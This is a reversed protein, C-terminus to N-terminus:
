KKWKNIMAKCNKANMIEESAELKANTSEQLAKMKDFESFTPPNMRIYYKAKIAKEIEYDSYDAYIRYNKCKELIENDIKKNETQRNEVNQNKKSNASVLQSKNIYGYENYGNVNYSVYYWSGNRSIFKLNVNDPLKAIINSNMTAKERVNVPGSTSKTIYTSAKKKSSIKPNSNQPTVSNTTDKQIQQTDPVSQISAMNQSEMQKKELKTLKNQMNFIYFIGSLLVFVSLVIIIGILIKIISQNNKEQM